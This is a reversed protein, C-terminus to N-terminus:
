WWTNVILSNTEQEFLKFLAKSHESWILLQTNGIFPWPAVAFLFVKESLKNKLCYREGPKTVKTLNGLLLCYRLSECSDLDGTLLECWLNCLLSRCSQRRCKSQLIRVTAINLFTFPLDGAWLHSFGTYRCIHLAGGSRQPATYGANACSTPIPCLVAPLANDLIDISGPSVHGGTTM